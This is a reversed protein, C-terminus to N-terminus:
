NSFRMYHGLGVLRWHSCLARLLCSWRNEALCTAFGIKSVHFNIICIRCSFCGDTCSAAFFIRKPVLIQAYSINVTAVEIGLFAKTSIFAM